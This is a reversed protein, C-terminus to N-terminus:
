AATRNQHGSFRRASPSPHVHPHLVTYGLVCCNPLLILIYASRLNRSIVILSGLYRKRMKKGTVKNDATNCMLVLDSRKFDYDRITTAHEIEFQAAARLHAGYVDSHLQALQTRHKQFAIARRAILETSSLISNPSPLLYTAESIDLPLLPHTGTVAFYPSCSMRRRVTIRDAWFVSYTMNHWKGDDETAKVISKRVNFHPHEIIINARLNYGLIRIHKIHYKSELYALAKLFPPGNDTVIELLTGWRCIFDQFIWDGIASAVERRLM